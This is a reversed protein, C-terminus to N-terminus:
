SSWSHSLNSKEVTFHCIAIQNIKEYKNLEVFNNTRVHDRGLGNMMVEDVNHREGGDQNNRTKDPLHSINSPCRSHCSHSPADDPRVLMYASSQHVVEGLPHM